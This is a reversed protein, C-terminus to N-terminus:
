DRSPEKTARCGKRHLQTRSVKVTPRRSQPERLTSSIEFLPCCVQVGFKMLFAPDCASWPERGLGSSSGYGVTGAEHRRPAPRPPSRSLAGAAAATMVGLM